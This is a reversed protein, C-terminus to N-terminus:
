LVGCMRLAIVVALGALLPVAVRGALAWPTTDTLRGCMVAVAAVPSMTRGAASGISVLAGVDENVGPPADPQHFFGYLSATSAMGSGCAAAFAGPLVVALPVRLWPATAVVQKVLDGFGALEVAKGFSVAIVILSVVNAFGYGAGEFFAKASDGAKRPSVAAAVAAGLVMALGVMRGGAAKEAAAVAKARQNETAGDPVKVEVLWHPPIALMKLPPGSLVLLVLPLLPVAAKLWNVRTAGDDGRAQSPTLEPQGSAGLSATERDKWWWRCLGWFVLTSVVLQPVVVWPLHVRALTLVDTGTADKVTNLEPAGPNFLEGGVSAGLLLAAGIVMPPFGAARMVPVVVAGLCVAVSTQSLVPINVVFGALVVGPIILPRVRRVPAVLVRVLHQDCETLKLVYAFGMASCIPIIYTEGSFTDFFKRSVDPLYGGAMGLVVAAALLVLRVDWGRATLVAAAVILVVALALLM